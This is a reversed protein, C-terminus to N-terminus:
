HGLVIYAVLFAFGAAFGIGSDRWFHEESIKVIKLSDAETKMKSITKDANKVNDLCIGLLASDREMLYKTEIAQKAQDQSIDIFKNTDKSSYVSDFLQVKKVSDKGSFVSDLNSSVKEFHNVVIKQKVIVTDHIYSQRDKYLTDIKAVTNQIVNSSKPQFFQKGGFFGLILAILLLAIWIKENM